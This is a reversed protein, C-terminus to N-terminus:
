NLLEAPGVAPQFAVQGLVHEPVIVFALLRHSLGRNRPPLLQLRHRSRHSAASGKRHALGAHCDRYHRDRRHGELVPVRPSGPLKGRQRLFPVLRLLRRSRCSRPYNSATGNCFRTCAPNNLNLRMVHYRSGNGTCSPTSSFLFAATGCTETPRLIQSRWELNERKAASPQLRVRLWSGTSASVGVCAHQHIPM